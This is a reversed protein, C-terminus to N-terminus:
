SPAYAFIAISMPRASKTTAPPFRAAMSTSPGKTVIGQAYVSNAVWGVPKNTTSGSGGGSGAFIHLFKDNAQGVLLGEFIYYTLETAV